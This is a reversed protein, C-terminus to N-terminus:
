DQFAHFAYSGNHRRIRPPPAQRFLAEDQPEPMLQEALELLHDIVELASRRRMPFRRGLKGQFHEVLVGVPVGTREDLRLMAAGVGPASVEQYYGATLEVEGNPDRDFGERTVVEVSDDHADVILCYELGRHQCLAKM